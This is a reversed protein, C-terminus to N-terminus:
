RDANSPSGQAIPQEPLPVSRREANAPRWMKTFQPAGEPLALVGTPEFGFHQYLPVNTLKSSELYAAMGEEDVHELRSRLLAAGVGKGQFEPETGIVYLYWHPEDRPHEKFMVNETHLARLSTGRFSAVYGPFTAFRVALPPQWRNPPKWVTSGVIRGDVLAVETGGLHLAEKNLLTTFYRELRKLRTAAHPLHYEFGPDDEFARALMQAAQTVDDRRAPRIKIDLSEM